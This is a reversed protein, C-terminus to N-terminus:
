EAACYVITIKSQQPAEGKISQSGIEQGSCSNDPVVTVDLQLNPGQLLRTAKGITMGVVDPVKILGNSVVINVVSGAPLKTGEEPDSGIVAGDAATPSYKKTVDGVVFGANELTSKAKAMAMLNISPVASVPKGSSEIVTVIEGEALNVGAEPSTSIVSGEPVTDSPEVRRIVTLGLETLKSEATEFSSERVDPMTIALSNVAQGSNLTLVWYMMGVVVSAVVLLGAAGILIWRVVAGKPPTDSDLIPRLDNLDMATGDSPNNTAVPLEVNRVNNSNPAAKVTPAPTVPQPPTAPPAAALDARGGGILRPVARLAAAFEAATRFRADRDKELGKAIVMDIEPSLEPRRSRARPATQTVHQFAISVSTDGTFLPTGTVMEFLVVATSYLDSRGDIIEGKAQEPSFYQATGVIASPDNTPDEIAQAIGFDCVKVLGSQTIMVNGPKIDRHIIGSRHSEDLADLIGLAIHVAVKPEFAGGDMLRRLIKGDIYEMVIYPIPVDNSALPIFEEGADYVRVINPHGMASVSHAERQFRKRSETDIAVEPRLAKIAVRRQLRTDTGLYVNAMGGRGILREPQYRNAFLFPAQLISDLGTNRPSQNNTL